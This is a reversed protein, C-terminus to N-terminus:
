AVQHTSHLGTVVAGSPEGSSWCPPVGQSPYAGPKPPPSNTTAQPAYNYQLVIITYQVFSHITNINEEEEGMGMFEERAQQQVAPLGSALFVTAKLNLMM